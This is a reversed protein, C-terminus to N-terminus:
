ANFLERQALPMNAKWDDIENERIIPKSLREKMIDFYKKDREIGIFKRGTKICAVGTSGSGATFDLVRDGENSHHKIWKLLLEVPKQTPHLGAVGDVEGHNRGCYVIDTPHSHTYEKIDESQLSDGGIHKPKKRKLKRKYPNALPEGNAHFVRFKQYFVHGFEATRMPQYKVMQFNSGKEKQWIWDFKHNFPVAPDLASMKLYLSFPEAGMILIVADHRCVYSLREWMEKFPITIDWDLKGAGSFFGYPPDVCVMDVCGKPLKLMEVLCDGHILKVNDM